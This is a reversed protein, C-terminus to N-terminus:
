ADDFDIQVGLFEDFVLISMVNLYIFRQLFLYPMM